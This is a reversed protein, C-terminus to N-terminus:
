RSRRGAGGVAAPMPPESAHGASIAALVDVAADVPPLTDAADAIRGANRRYSPEGLLRPVALALASITDSSPLGLVRRTTHEADLALGAGVRAVAAANTWQDSSFLPLVVLPVGHRLAGLTTGYGGHCVVAAAHPLVADQAVWRELHVNPPIAGLERLDRGDGTTLLVRAHLPALADIVARYLAPFYPLHLAASVTGLTVYVLPDENGPWWDPLPPAPAPPGQAFRHVTTPLAVAPDELPQPVMTLYPADRLRDGAPDAPLGIAARARDVAEATLRISLEEAAALGLGVRALPVDYLEAVLTSGFEWSERVIVDPRWGDVIARLRPLAARTDIEGFFEGVMRANAAEVGLREFQAMLPMWEREPPDDVPAFALGTRDINSRHQRQAAVM